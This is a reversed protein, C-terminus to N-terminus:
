KQFYPNYMRTSCEPCKVIHKKTDVEFSVFNEKCNKIPCFVWNDQIPIATFDLTDNDTEYDKLKEYFEKAVNKESGREWLEGWSNPNDLLVRHIIYVKSNDFGYEDKKIVYNKGIGDDILESLFNSFDQLNELESGTIISYENWIDSELLIQNCMRFLLEIELYDLEIFTQNNVYINEYIKDMLKEIYIFDKDNAGYYLWLYKLNQVKNIKM